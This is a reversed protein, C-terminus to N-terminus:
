SCIYGENEVRGCSYGGCSYGTCSYGGCSYGACSTYGKTVASIVDM